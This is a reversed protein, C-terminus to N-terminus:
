DSYYAMRIPIGTIKEKLCQISHEKYNLFNGVGVGVVSPLSLLEQIQKPDSLGGFLILPMNELSSFQPIRGDFACPSGENCYDTLMVESVWKFIEQLHLVEKINVEQRSRHNLWILQDEVVRVPMNAILAQTGLARSLSELLSPNDWLLSDITIRDAGFNVAEIADNVDRIGGGYILPTSLGLQGIKNLLNLDPGLSRVSRDISHVLIEDAGWRDLNEIIVEAKGLPLYKKYGFSQVAWGQYVTVVGILRKKLM